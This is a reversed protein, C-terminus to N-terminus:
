QIHKTFEFQNKFDSPDLPKVKLRWKVAAYSFMTQDFYSYEICKSWWENFAQNVTTENKRAFITCAYLDLHLYDELSNREAELQQNGYRSLLYQNGAKMQEEIHTYEQSLRTREPHPFIAVDSEELGKIMEECFVDATVKVRGDIWIYADYGPLFRHTQIKIYKSKLRNNLNPLPFPLNNDFYYYCDVPITQRPLGHIEDFQGINASVLAVKM